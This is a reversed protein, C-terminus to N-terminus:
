LMQLSTARFELGLWRRNKSLVSAWTDQHLV